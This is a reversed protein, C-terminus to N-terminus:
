RTQGKWLSFYWSHTYICICIYLYEYVNVTKKNTQKKIIYRTYIYVYVCVCMYAAIHKLAPFGQTNWQITSLILLLLNRIEVINIQFFFFFICRVANSQSWLVLLVWVASIWMSSGSGKYLSSVQGPWRILLSFRLTDCARTFMIPVWGILNSSFHGGNAYLKWM